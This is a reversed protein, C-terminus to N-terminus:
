PIINSFAWSIGRPELLLLFQGIHCVAGEVVLFSVSWLRLQGCFCLDDLLPNLLCNSDTSNLCLVVTSM